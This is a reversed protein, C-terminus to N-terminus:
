TIVKLHHNRRLNEHIARMCPPFHEDALQDLMDPTVQPRGGEAAAQRAAIDKRIVNEYHANKVRPVLREEEQLAPLERRISQFDHSNM